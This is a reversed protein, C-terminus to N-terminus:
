AGAEIEKQAMLVATADTLNPLDKKIQHAHNMIKTAQAHDARSRVSQPPRTDRNNLRTQAVGHHGAEVPKFGFDSLTATREERNSLGTLVPKLRNILKQDTVGYAALLVDVQEGLLALNETELTSNRNKLTLLRTVEILIAEEGAEPPLGLKVALTNMNAPHNNPQRVAPGASAPDAFTKGDRNTIPAGGKNNPDNTLTLGDLRLPRVRLPKADRNLIQLDRPDYESSFFRYDGGDIAPRGTNTWRIQGFPVGQRNQLRMLWGYAVTEKDAQHKFHEHDILMGPFPSGFKAAYADAEQNFRNVISAVATDDVIQLVGSERNLHEGPVEIQYWADAPHQFDRNLIPIM